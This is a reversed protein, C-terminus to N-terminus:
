ELNFLCKAEQTIVEECKIDRNERPTDSLDIVKLESLSENEILQVPGENGSIFTTHLIEHRDVVENFSKRLAYESLKGKLNFSTIVNYAFSDPYLKNIFWLREQSFSLPINNFSKRKPITQIARSSAIKIRLHWELLSRKAPTLDNTWDKNNLIM